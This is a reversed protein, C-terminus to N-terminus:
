SRPLVVWCCDHSVSVGHSNSGNIEDSVVILLIEMWNFFEGAKTKRVSKLSMKPIKEKDVITIDINQYEFVHIHDIDNSHL